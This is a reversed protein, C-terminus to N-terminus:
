STRGIRLEGIVLKVRGGFKLWPYRTDPNIKFKGGVKSWGPSSFGAEVSLRRAPIEPQGTFCRLVQNGIASHPRVENYL